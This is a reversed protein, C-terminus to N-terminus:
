GLLWYYFNLVKKVVIVENLSARCTILLDDAYMLHSM